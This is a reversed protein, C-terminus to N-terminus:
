PVRRASAESKALLRALRRYLTLMAAYTFHTNRGSPNPLVFVRAGHVRQRQLGVRRGSSRRARATSTQLRDFVTLGVLAVVAPRLTHVKELLELRGSEFDASALGAVGSTPRM